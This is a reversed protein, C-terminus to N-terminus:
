LAFPRYELAKDVVEEATPEPGEPWFILGSVYGNPCGLALDLAETARAFEADDAHVSDM